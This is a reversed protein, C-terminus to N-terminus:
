ITFVPMEPYGVTYDYTRIEEVSQLEKAMALHSHTVNYCGLAYIELVNLMRIAADVPIEYRVGDFWLMTASKGAEKEIGISNMLGVRTDKSIWMRKGALTFSNVADSKDYREIQGVLAQRAAAVPNEGLLNGMEAVENASLFSGNASVSSLIEELSPKYPFELEYFSVGNHRTEEAPEGTEEIDERMDWRVRWKGLRENICEVPQIGTSGYHREM